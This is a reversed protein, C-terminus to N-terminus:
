PVVCWNLMKHTWPLMQGVKEATVQNKELDAINQRDHCDTPQFSYMTIIPPILCLYTIHITSSWKVIYKWTVLVGDPEVKNKLHIAPLLM